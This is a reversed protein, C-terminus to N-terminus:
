GKEPEIVALRSIIKFTPSSHFKELARVLWSDTSLHTPHRAALNDTVAKLLKFGPTKEDRKKKHKLFISARNCM